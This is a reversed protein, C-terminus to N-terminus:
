HEDSKLNRGAIIAFDRLTEATFHRSETKEKRTVEAAVVPTFIMVGAASEITVDFDAADTTLSDGISPEIKRLWDDGNRAALIPFSTTLMMVGRCTFNTDRARRTERESRIAASVQQLVHTVIGTEEPDIEPVSGKFKIQIDVAEDPQ